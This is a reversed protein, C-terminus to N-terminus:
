SKATTTVATERWYHPLFFYSAIVFMHLGALVRLFVSILMVLLLIKKWDAGELFCDHPFQGVPFTIMIGILAACFHLISNDPFLIFSCAIIPASYTSPMGFYTRCKIDPHKDSTTYYFERLISQVFLAVALVRFQPYGQLWLMYSPCIGHCIIDAISDLLAGTKSTAHLIRAMGGDFIDTLVTALILWSMEEIDGQSGRYLAMLGFIIGMISIFNPIMSSAKPSTPRVSKTSDVNKTLFGTMAKQSWLPDGGTLDSFYIEDQGSEGCIVVESGVHIDNGSNDSVDVTIMTSSIAGVVPFRKGNILVFKSIQSPDTPYGNSYGIPVTAILSDRTTTFKHHHYGIKSGSKVSRLLVVSSKVSVVPKLFHKWKRMIGYVAGGLRVMGFETSIGQPDSLVSFSSHIHLMSNQFQSNTKQLHKAARLFSEKESVIVFPDSRNSFHAMIGVWELEKHDLCHDLTDNYVSDVDLGMQNCGTSLCLHVKVRTNRQRAVEAIFKASDEHGVIEEIDLREDLAQAIENPSAPCIRLLKLKSTLKRVQRAESNSTIAVYDAMGDKLCVETVSEIGLGYANDQVVVCLTVHKPLLERYERINSALNERSVNVVVSSSLSSM